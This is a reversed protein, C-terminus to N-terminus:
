AHTGAVYGSTWALQLSYGGSPRTVHLLDGTIFLNAYKTSRMTKTDIETLPLGGDAIVARDFGMLGTISVPLAKLTEVLTRRETKTVSHVKKSPDVDQALSLIVNGTGAPAIEKFVNKLIKNKNADFIETIKKEYIGLDHDPCTDIRATVTGNILLDGVKGAANLILPGSLGFHTLLVGGRLSFARKGDQFFTIKVDQLAIGSLKRIWANSARLPVVTPTPKIIPFGFASLWAFGDGTSGTEPHSVGGTALVYSRATYEEGGAIVKTIRNNEYVIRQVSTRTRVDLKGSELYATLARVVDSAKESQPFARKRAEIKLPVGHSEFFAYTDRMSFQSFPSYLFPAAKGYHSLLAHTDEEANLINCRGNGTILLKAGLAANKELLLVRKGLEAARGAAMMGAAGGGIVLVDYM